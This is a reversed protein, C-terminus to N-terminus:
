AAGRMERRVIALILARDADHYSQAASWSWWAVEWSLGREPRYHRLFRAAQAEHWSM